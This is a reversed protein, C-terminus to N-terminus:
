RERKANTRRSRQSTEAVPLDVQSFAVDHAVEISHRDALRVRMAGRRAASEVPASDRRAARVLSSAAASAPPSDGPDGVPLTTGIKNRALVSDVVNIIGDANIDIKPDYGADAARRFGGHVTAAIDAISVEGDGTVDGPLVDFRFKFEGGPIGDGTPYQSNRDGDLPIDTLDVVDPDLSVLIEDLEIPATLMWTAVSTLRDYNFSAIAYERVSVGEIL